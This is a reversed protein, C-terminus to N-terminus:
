SVQVRPLSQFHQSVAGELPLGHGRDHAIVERTVTNDFTVLLNESTYWILLICIVASM